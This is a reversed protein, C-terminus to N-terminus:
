NYTSGADQAGFSADSGNEDKGEDYKATTRYGSVDSGADPESACFAGVKVDNEDGFCQPV